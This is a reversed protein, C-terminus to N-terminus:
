CLFGASPRLRAHRLRLNWALSPELLPSRDPAKAACLPVSRKTGHLHASDCPLATTLLVRYLSGFCFVRVRLADGPNDDPSDAPLFAGVTSQSGHFRNSYM